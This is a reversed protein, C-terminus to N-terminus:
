NKLTTMPDPSASVLSEQVFHLPSTEKNKNRNVGFVGVWLAASLYEKYKKHQWLICARVCWPSLSLIRRFPVWLKETNDRCGPVM